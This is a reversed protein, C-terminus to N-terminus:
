SCGGLIMVSFFYLVLTSLVTQKVQFATIQFHHQPELIQRIRCNLSTGHFSVVEAPHLASAHRIMKVMASGLELSSEMRKIAYRDALLERITRYDQVLGKIIPLFRLGDSLLILIFMKLPDGQRLHYEEHFIVAKVENEDLLELLGTSLIIKPSVIGIVYALPSESRIAIIDNQDRRYRENIEKTLEDNQLFLIKKKMRMSTFTQKLLRWGYLGVMLGFVTNLLLGISFHGGSTANVFNICYKFLNVAVDTGFFVHSIYLGIQGFIAFSILLILGYISTSKTPKLKRM